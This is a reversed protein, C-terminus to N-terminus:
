VTLVSERVFFASEEAAQGVGTSQWRYKWEGTADVSVDVHYHGVSDKVLQADTGYTYRTISGSPKIFRFKVVTPDLVAGAYDTFVASCRVLDGVDYSTTAM